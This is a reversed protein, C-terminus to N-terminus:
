EAVSNDIISKVLGLGMVQFDMVIQKFDYKLQDKDTSAQGSVTAIQFSLVCHPPAKSNFGSLRVRFDQRIKASPKWLVAIHQGGAPNYFFM